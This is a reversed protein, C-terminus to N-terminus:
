PEVTKDKGPVGSKGPKPFPPRKSSGLTGNKNFRLYEHVVGGGLEFEYDGFILFSRAQIAVQGVLERLEAADAYLFQHVL